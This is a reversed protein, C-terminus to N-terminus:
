GFAASNAPRSPDEVNSYTRYKHLWVYELMYYSSYPCVAEECHNYTKKEMFNTGWVSTYTLYLESGMNEWNGEPIALRSYGEM